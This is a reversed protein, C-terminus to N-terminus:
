RRSSPRCTGRASTSPSTRRSPSPRPEWRTTDDSFGRYWRVAVRIPTEARNTVGVVTASRVRGGTVSNMYTVLYRPVVLPLPVAVLEELDLAEVAREMGRRARPDTPVKPSKDLLDKTM